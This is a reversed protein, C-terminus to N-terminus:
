KRRFLKQWWRQPQLAIAVINSQRLWDREYDWAHGGWLKGAEDSFGLTLLEYGYGAEGRLWDFLVLTNFGTSPGVYRKGGPRDVPYHWLPPLPIRDRYMAVRPLPCMPAACGVLMSFCREGSREFMHQVHPGYPLGFFYADPANYGHVFVNVSHENLLTAKICTNFSVVVDDAGLNLAQFDAATIAPNNAILLVRAARSLCDRLEAPLAEFVAQDGGPLADLAMPQDKM